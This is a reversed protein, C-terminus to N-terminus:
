MSLHVTRCPKAKIHIISNECLVLVGILAELIEKQDYSVNSNDNNNQNNAGEKDGRFKRGQTAVPFNDDVQDTSIDPWEDEGENGAEDGWEDDNEEGGWGEAEKDSPQPWMKKDNSVPGESEGNSSESTVGGNQDVTMNNFSSYQMM